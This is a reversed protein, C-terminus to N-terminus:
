PQPMHNFRLDQELRHWEDSDARGAQELEEMQKRIRESVVCGWELTEGRWRCGCRPVVFLREQGM